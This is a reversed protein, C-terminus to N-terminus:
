RSAEARAPQQGSYATLWAVVLAGGGVRGATRGTGATGGAVEAFPELGLGLGFRRAPGVYEAGFRGGIALGFQAVQPAADLRLGILPGFVPRIMHSGDACSCPTALWLVDVRLDLQKRVVGAMLTNLLPLRVRLQSAFSTPSGVVLELSPLLVDPGVAPAPDFVTVGGGASTGVGTFPPEGAAAARPGVLALLM